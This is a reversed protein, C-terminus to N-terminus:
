LEVSTILVSDVIQQLAPEPLSWMGHDETLTGSGNPVFSNRVTLVVRPKLLRWQCISSNQSLMACAHTIGPAPPM